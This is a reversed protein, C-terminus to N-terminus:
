EIIRFIGRYDKDRVFPEVEITDIGWEKENEYLGDLFEEVHSKDGCVTITIQDAGAPRAVGEIVCARAHKLLSARLFTSPFNGTLVIKLCKKM